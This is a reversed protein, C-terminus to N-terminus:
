YAKFTYVRERVGVQLEDVRSVITKACLQVIQSEEAEFAIDVSASEAQEM